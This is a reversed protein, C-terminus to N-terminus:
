RDINGKNISHQRSLQVVQEKRTAIEVNLKSIKSEWEEIRQEYALPFLTLLIVM